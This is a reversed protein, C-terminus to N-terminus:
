AALPVPEEEAEAQLREPGVAEVAAAQARPNPFLWRSLGVLLGLGAYAALAAIPNWFLLGALAIRLFNPHFGLDEGIGECVGLFTDPRAILSAQNGHM